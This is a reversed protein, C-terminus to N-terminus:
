DLERGPDTRVAQSRCAVRANSVEFSSGRFATGMGGWTLLFHDSSM